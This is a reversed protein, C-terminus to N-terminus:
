LKCFRFRFAAYIWTIPDRFYSVKKGSGFGRANYSVPVEIPIFNCRVLKGMLEWDFDFRNSQFELGDICHTRFVKYMTFPDTLNTGYLVNFLTVFFHHGANLVNSRIPEGPMVRMSQGSKHRTGLVFDSAGDLLPKILSPYDDLSYEDDADQILIIDGKAQKLGERVAHGKGRPCDQYIINVNHLTEYGKIIM